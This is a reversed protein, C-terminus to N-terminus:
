HHSVSFGFYHRAFDIETHTHPFLGLWTHGDMGIGRDQGEWNGRQRVEDRASKRRWQGFVYCLQVTQLATLSCERVSVGQRM